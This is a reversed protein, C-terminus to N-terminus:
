VSVVHVHFSLRSLQKNNQLLKNRYCFFDDVNLMVPRNRPSEGWMPGTSVFPWYHPFRKWTMDNHVTGSTMQRAISLKMVNEISLVIQNNISDSM